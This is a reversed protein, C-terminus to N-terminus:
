LAQTILRARDSAVHPVSERSTWAYYSQVTPFTTDENENQELMEQNYWLDSLRLSGAGQLHCTAHFGM